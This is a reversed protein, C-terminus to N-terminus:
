REAEDNVTAKDSGRSLETVTYVIHAIKSDTM